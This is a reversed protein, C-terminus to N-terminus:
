LIEKKVVTTEASLYVKRCRNQEMRQHFKIHTIKKLTIIYFREDTIKLFYKLCSCFNCENVADKVYVYCFIDPIKQVSLPLKENLNLDSMIM